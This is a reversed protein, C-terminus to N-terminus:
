AVETLYETVIRTPNFVPLLLGLGLRHNTKNPGALTNGSNPNKNTQKNKLQILSCKPLLVTERTGDSGVVGRTNCRGQKRVELSVQTQCM